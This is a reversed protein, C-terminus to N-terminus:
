QILDQKLQFLQTPRLGATRMAETDAMVTEPPGDAVIRGNALALWRDAYKAAFELDHTVIVVTRGEVRLEAILKGLERRFPEDQGATPEDLVVIEPCSALATAFAVRKKQGESLQFPSRDFLTKLDFRDFLHDCWAQDFTHLVRPGTLVEERVTSQFLQDNPNQWAFGIHRALEAVSTKRIDQGHVKV